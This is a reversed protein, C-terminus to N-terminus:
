RVRVICKVSVIGRIRFRLRVRSWIRTIATGLILVPVYMCWCRDKGKCQRRGNRRSGYETKSLIKSM